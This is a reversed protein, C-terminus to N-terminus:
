DDVQWLYLFQTGQSGLWDPLEVNVLSGPEVAGISYVNAVHGLPRHYMVVRARSVGALRKAWGVADPLYGMRDVLGARVSQEATFVRGDALGELEARTLEARGALVVQLFNEYFHLIIQELLQREDDRLDRLPSALDKLKGSTIAEAKIGLKRMTGEFSVTQMITGISGTVSSPQVIIGDCQCAVYYAGSAALGLVSAVVPKGTKKRFESLAHHMMDSAAVTGGPSNIRLVVAKVNGDRAAKDLKEVFLSVPNDSKGFLGSEARNVIVGDIEIVAIKDFVFLGEDRSVQTEDLDQHRPAPQIVVGGPACGGIGAMLLGVGVAGAALRGLMSM